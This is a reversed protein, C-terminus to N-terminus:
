SKPIPAIYATPYEVNIKRIPLAPDTKAPWVPYKTVKKPMTQPINKSLSICEYKTQVEKKNIM